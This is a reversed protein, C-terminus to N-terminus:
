RPLDSNKDRRKARKKGEDTPTSGVKSGVAPNDVELREAVLRLALRVAASRNGTGYYRNITEVAREDVEDLIVNVRKMSVM